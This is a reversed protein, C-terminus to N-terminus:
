SHQHPLRYLTTRTQHGEGSISCIHQETIFPLSFPPATIVIGSGSAIRVGPGTRKDLNQVFGPSIPLAETLVLFRFKQLKLVIRAIQDNSLHQLVLRLFIVDADPLFDAAADLCRFDVDLDSFKVRNYAILDPVVDCAIYRGCWPRIRSGVNFDGCGLDVVSPKTSLSSLFDVVAIVYPDVLSPEHSGGGSYFRNEPTQGWVGKRYVESFVEPSNEGAFAADVRRNVRRFRFEALRELVPKPLMRKVQRKWNFM